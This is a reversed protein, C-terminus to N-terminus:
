QEESEHAGHSENQDRWDPVEADLISELTDIRDQLSEAIAALEGLEYKGQPAIHHERRRGKRLLLVWITIFFLVMGVISIIFEFVDM